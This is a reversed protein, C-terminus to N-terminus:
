LLRRFLRCVDVRRHPTVRDLVRNRGFETVLDKTVGLVGGWAEKGEGEMHPLTAGGAVDEGMLIVTPDRRMELRIAENIAESFTITRTAM